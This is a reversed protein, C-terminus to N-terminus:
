KGWRRVPQSKEVWDAQSEVLGPTSGPGYSLADLMAVAESLRCDILSVAIPRTTQKGYYHFGYLLRDVLFM